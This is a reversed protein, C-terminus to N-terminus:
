EDYEDIMDLLDEAESLGEEAAKRLYKEANTYSELCGYGYAYCIGLQFCARAYVDTFSVRLLYDEEERKYIKAENIVDRFLRVAKYQDSNIVFLIDELLFAAYQLKATLRIIPEEDFDQSIEELRNIIGSLTMFGENEAIASLEGYEVAKQSVWTVVEYSEMDFVDFLEM